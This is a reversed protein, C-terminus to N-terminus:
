KRMWVPCCAPETELLVVEESFQGAHLVQVIMRGDIVADFTLTNGDLSWFPTGTYGKEFHTIQTLTGTKVEIVYINSVLSESSQNAAKDEPNERVVFAIHDGDLSWNAAYGHGADVDALKRVNSGDTDMVWLEGITFPTQTDPIKIFAIQEGDPSFRALSIYSNPDSYLLRTNRGDDQALHIESGYGLGRSFTFTLDRSDPRVALDYTFENIALSDSAGDTHARIVEPSGLSDVKLYAAEGDSTWALFHADSDTVPQIVSESGPSVSSSANLFLVTHGSPCNLEIVLFGGLPAPVTNSLGCDPPLRFHIERHPQFDASYEIFAPPDFRYVLLSTQTHVPTQAACSLIFLCAVNLRVYQTSRGARLM